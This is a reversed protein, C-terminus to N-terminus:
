SQVEVELEFKKIKELTEYLQESQNEAQKLLKELESVNTKVKVTIKEEENM